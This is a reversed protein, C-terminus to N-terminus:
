RATVAQRRHQHPSSDIRNASRVALVRRDARVTLVQLVLIGVLAAAEVVQLRPPLIPDIIFAFSLAIAAVLAATPRQRAVVVLPIALLM